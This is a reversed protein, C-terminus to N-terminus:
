LRTPPALLCRCRTPAPQFHKTRAAFGIQREGRSMMPRPQRSRGADDTVDDTVGDGVTAELRSCKLPWSATPPAGALESGTPQHNMRLFTNWHRGLSAAARRETLQCVALQSRGIM